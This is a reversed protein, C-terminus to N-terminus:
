AVLHALVVRHIEPPLEAAMESAMAADVSATKCMDMVFEAHPQGMHMRMDDEKIRNFEYGPVMVGGIIVNDISARKIEQKSFGNYFLQCPNPQISSYKIRHDRDMDHLLDMYEELKEPETSASKVIDQYISLAEPSIGALKRRQVFLAAKEFDAERNLYAMIALYKGSKSILEKLVDTLQTASLEGYVAISSSEFIAKAQSQSEGDIEELLKGTRDKAETVNPQNFPDVNLARCLLATVWEWLIFHEGLSATVNLDSQSNGFGISLV